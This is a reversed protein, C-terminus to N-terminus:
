TRFDHFVRYISIFFTTRWVVMCRYTYKYNYCFVYCKPHEIIILFYCCVLIYYLFYGIIIIVIIIQVFRTYTWQKRNQM